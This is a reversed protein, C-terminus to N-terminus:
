TMSCLYQVSECLLPFFPPAVIVINVSRCDTRGSGLNQMLVYDAYDEWWLHLYDVRKEETGQRIEGVWTFLEWSQM